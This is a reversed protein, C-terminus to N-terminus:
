DLYRIYDVQEEIRDLYFGRYEEPMMRAIEIMMHDAVDQLLAKDKVQGNIEIRFPRGIKIHMPTRRLHKINEIFKEHGFYVMPLITVDAKLALMAVGPKGQILHGDESRTGEPAVALIRKEELARLCEKIAKFDAIDRDIPIGGWTNFLFAHLANDWTEKKVLGTTPRPHMHSIVVPADLFNVHNAIVLLPGEKPVKQLESKDIRLLINSIMKVTTNVLWKKM